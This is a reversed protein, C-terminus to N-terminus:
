KGRGEKYFKLRGVRCVYRVNRAKAWYPMCSVDHYMNVSAKFQASADWARQATALEQKTRAKQKVGKNWCSFQGKEMVVQEPTLKREQARQRIVKAVLVQANFSEGSSERAITEVVVDAYASSCLLLFIVLTKM